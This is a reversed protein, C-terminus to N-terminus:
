TSQDLGVIRDLRTSEHQEVMSCSLQFAFRWVPVIAQSAPRNLLGVLFEKIAGEYSAEGTGLEIPGPSRTEHEERDLEALFENVTAPTARRLDTGFETFVRERLEELTM